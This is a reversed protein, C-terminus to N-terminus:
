LAERTFLAISEVHRTHPFMDLVGAKKLTYGQEHVLAKADRALTAPNCSIYLITQPNLSNLQQIVEWAGSRPPDILLKNYVPKAWPQSSLSQTLDYPYFGVNQLENFTANMKGREVMEASGEVGTVQKAYRALPLTFNGLGCFLDLIQDNEQPELLTIALDIMKENIEQNVQTFDTALFRLTIQYSRLSYHQFPLGEDSGLKHISLPKGPQLYISLGHKKEFTKLVEIDNESFAELNRFIIIAYDDSVSVEAQAVQNKISIQDLMERIDSIIKGIAPHLIDCHNMDTLFRGDNERFGVLPLGKKAIYRIGLRAKRRYDFPKATVPPLVIEPECEGTHKLLDLLVREKHAIQAQSDLHQLSCGGCTGFHPCKPIVRDPSPDQEVSIARGSDFQGRVETYNFAVTEGPLAYDIFTTKGNIKAIGRGEHNLRDVTATFDGAPIKKRKGM